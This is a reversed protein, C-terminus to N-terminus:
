TAEGTDAAMALFEMPNLDEKEVLTELEHDFLGAIADGLSEFQIRKYGRWGKTGRVLVWPREGERCKAIQVWHMSQKVFWRWMTKEYGINV